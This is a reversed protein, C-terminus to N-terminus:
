NAASNAHTGTEAPPERWTVAVGNSYRLDVSAIRAAQDKLAVQYIAIFRQMKDLLHERGLLLEVGQATSVFWSGRERMELRAISFGLPRLMQSFIQYQQMVQTQAHAPGLLQPLHQYNGAERPSFAKGQSNLVAADGWRAVPLREEIHIQLQDPWVRRVEAHSIWPVAELQARMAHLNVELFSAQGFPAVIEQVSQQSLPSLDGLVSVRSIPRDVYPLARQALEFTAVGLLVLLLPWVLRRLPSLDIDPLRLRLPERVVPRSAGRPQPRNRAPARLTAPAHRLTASSM